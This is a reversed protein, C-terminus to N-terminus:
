KVPHYLKNINTEYSQIAPRYRMSGSYLYGDIGCESSIYFHDEQGPMVFQGKGGFDAITYGELHLLTPLLVEHHGQWKEILAYHIYHLAANSIRYIPNFSRICLHPPICYHTHTLSNWWPWVPEEIYTRMHSSIFDPQIVQKSFFNFFYSWSGSFRVDDEIYWYHDYLPNKLYFDLLPFHNSGPILTEGIAKYNLRQLIDNTFIYHNAETIAEPIGASTQHYAVFLDGPNQISSRLERYFEMVAPTCKNTLLIFAQTISM